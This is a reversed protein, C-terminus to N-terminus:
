FLTSPFASIKASTVFITFNIQHIYSRSIYVFVCLSMRVEPNGIRRHKQFTLFACLVRTVSSFYKQTVPAFNDSVQVGLTCRYSSTGAWVWSGKRARFTPSSACFTMKKWFLNCSIWSFKRCRQRSKWWPIWHKCWKDIIDVKQISKESTVFSKKRSKM